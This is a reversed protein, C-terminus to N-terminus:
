SSFYPAFIWYLLEGLAPDDPSLASKMAESGIRYSVWWGAFNLCALLLWAVSRRWQKQSLKKLFLGSAFTGLLLLATLLALALPLLVESNYFSPACVILLIIIAATTKYLKKLLWRQPQPAPTVLAEM